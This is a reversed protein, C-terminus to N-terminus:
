MGDIIRQLEDAREREAEARQRDADAQLMAADARQRDVEAQLTAADGRQRQAEARQREADARQREAEAQLTAADAREREAEANRELDQLGELYDDEADMKKRVSEEEFARQLRRIVPHYKKPFSAEEIALLHNNEVGTSQDFIGLLQELETQRRAPLRSIQIVYSDHTLGEIFPESKEVVTGSSVDVYQRQVKLIPVTVTELPYGLFYISIIPTGHEKGDDKSRYKNARNRYQEGLYRRFRMIDGAFKAKQIEILVVKPGADTQITASFDLRYVTISCQELESTQEQPRLQIEVIEEGLIASLLLKAIKSDELLYKFVVDYVPNAIRISSTM